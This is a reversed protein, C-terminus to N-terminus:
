GVYHLHTHIEPSLKQLTVWFTVCTSQIGINLENIPANGWFRPVIPLPVVYQRLAQEGFKSKGADAGRVLDPKASVVMELRVVKQPPHQRSIM